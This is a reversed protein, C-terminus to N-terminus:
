ELVSQFVALSLFVIAVAIVVNALVDVSHRLAEPLIAPCIAAIVFSIKFLAIAAAVSHPVGMAIADFVVAAM